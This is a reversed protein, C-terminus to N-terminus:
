NAMWHKYNYREGRMHTKQRPEDREEAQAPVSAKCKELYEAAEIESQMRNRDYWDDTTLTGAYLDTVALLYRRRENYTKECFDRHGRMVKEKPWTPHNPKDASLAEAKAKAQALLERFTAREGDTPIKPLPPAALAEQRQKLNADLALEAKQPAARYSLLCITYVQAVKSRLEKEKANKFVWSTVKNYVMFTLPHSFDGEAVLRVIDDATPIGSYYLCLEVFEVISPPYKNLAELVHMAAKYFVEKPFVKTKDIWMQKFEHWEDNTQYKNRWLDAYIINLKKLLRDVIMEHTIEQNSVENQM